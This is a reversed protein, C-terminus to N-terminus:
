GRASREAAADIMTKSLMAYATAWADKLEPTWKSGLHAQLTQLLAAGVAEYHQPTAKYGRHRVGLDQVAKQIQSVDSLGKVVYVLTGVLKEKQNTLDDPFLPRVSPAAAFLNNYFDTALQGAKAAVRTFSDQIASVQAPTLAKSPASM